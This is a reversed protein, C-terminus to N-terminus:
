FTTSEHTLPHPQYCASVNAKHDSNQQLYEQYRKQQESSLKSFFPESKKLDEKNKLTTDKTLVNNNNKVKCYGPLWETPATHPKLKRQHWSRSTASTKENVKAKLQSLFWLSIPNPVLASLKLFVHLM